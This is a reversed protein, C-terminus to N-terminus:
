PKLAFFFFIPTLMDEFKTPLQEGLKKIQYLGFDAIVVLNLNNNEGLPNGNFSYM